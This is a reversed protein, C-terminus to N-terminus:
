PANFSSFKSPFNDDKELIISIIHKFDMFDKQAKEEFKENESQVAFDM